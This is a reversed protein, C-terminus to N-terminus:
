DEALLAAAATAAALLKAGLLVPEQGSNLQVSAESSFDFGSMDPIPTLGKELDSYKQRAERVAIRPM